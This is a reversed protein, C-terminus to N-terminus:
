PTAHERGSCATAPGSYERLWGGRNGGRGRACLIHMIAPKPHTIVLGPGGNIKALPARCALGELHACGECLPMAGPHPEHIPLQLYLRAHRDIERKECRACLVVVVPTPEDWENCELWRRLQVLGSWDATQKPDEHGVAGCGQCVNWARPYPLTHSLGPRQREALPPFKTM